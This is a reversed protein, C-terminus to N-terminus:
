CMEKKLKTLQVSVLCAVIDNFYIEYLAIINYHM